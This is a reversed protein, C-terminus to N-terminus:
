PRRCFAMQWVWSCFLHAYQAGVVSAPSHLEVGGRGPQAPVSLSELLDELQPRLASWSLTEAEPKSLEVLGKQLKNFLWVKEPGALAAVACTSLELVPAGVLRDLHRPPPNQNVQALASLNIGLHDSAIEKWQQFGKPHQARATAWFGSDPNSCLPHSLLKATAEFPFGTDLVELLLQIWTGLRTTLLPTSYLARIPVGYEWAIEILKPGYAREDRAIIAIEKAPIDANLLAKVQALTGRIEAEFTGYVHASATEIPQEPPKASLFNDCLAANPLLVSINSAPM